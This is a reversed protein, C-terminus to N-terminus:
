FEEPVSNLIYLHAREIQFISELCIQQMFAHKSLMRKTNAYLLSIIAM